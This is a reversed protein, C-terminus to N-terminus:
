KLDIDGIEALAKAHRLAKTISRFRVQPFWSKLEPNYELTLLIGKYKITKYVIDDNQADPSWGTYSPSEPGRAGAELLQLSILSKNLLNENELYFQIFTDPLHVFAEDLTSYSSVSDLFIELTISENFLQEEQQIIDKFM